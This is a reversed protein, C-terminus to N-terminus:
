EKREVRMSAVPHVMLCFMRCTGSSESIRLGKYMMMEFHSLYARGFTLICYSSVCVQACQTWCHGNWANLWKFIRLLSFAGVVSM